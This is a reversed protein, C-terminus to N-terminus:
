LETDAETESDSGNDDMNKMQRIKETGSETSIKLQSITKRLSLSSNTKTLKKESQSAVEEIDNEEFFNVCNFTTPTNDVSQIQAHTELSRRDRYHTSTDPRSTYHQIPTIPLQQNHINVVMQKTIAELSNQRIPLRPKAGRVDRNREVMVSHQIADIKTLFNQADSKREDDALLGCIRSAQKLYILSQNWSQYKLFTKAMEIFHQIFTEYLIIRRIQEMHNM